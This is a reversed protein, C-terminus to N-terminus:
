LRLLPGEQRPRRAHQPLPQLLGAQQLAQAALLPQRGGQRQLRPGAAGAAPDDDPGRAEVGGALRHRGRRLRDGGDHGAPDAVFTM